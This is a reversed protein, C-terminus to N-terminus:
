NIVVFGVSTEATAAANLNITFSGAAPVVNKIVATSDNTRIVCLVISSTTVLSDTVVLSSAGAAFNVTGAAKNITQAGTTGAATNTADVYHQRVKLDRFTGATGNNVEVVGAANRSFATDPSGTISVASHFGFVGDSAIYFGAQGAGSSGQVRARQNGPSALSGGSNWTSPRGNVIFLGLANSLAGIDSGGQQFVLVNQSAGGNIILPAGSGSGFTNVGTFTQTGGLSALDADTVATNLQALTGSVTNSGLAFTKNTLTVSAANKTADSTNDVNGLGVDGKVIGTPTVLAPSNARVVDGTGTFTLVAQYLTDFYTKLTAKINAWTLKKLVGAAASDSLGVSDADVPTAKSTAGSVLTGVTTATEAPAAALAAANFDSVTSATQTGTHNSRARDTTSATAIAADRATAEASVATTTFATTAVQTTNTGPAATPATPTGTLAPSALPAKTDVEADLADVADGVAELSTVVAELEGQTAMDVAFGPNPFSGSLVGGAGGTPTRSDSLRTDSGKVVEGAAANGSAPANLAAATGADSITALTQQGTHNTRARDATSATAIAAGRATVEAADANARATAEANINTQLTADGSARASAEATDASARTTAEATVSAATAKLDLAGQLDTQASLTGTIDGWAGGGGEFEDIQEQLGEEAATARAVEAQLAAQSAGPLTTPTAPILDELDATAADPITVVVGKSPQTNFGWVPGDIWATCDRPLTFSVAGDSGIPVPLHTTSILAGGKVLKRVHLAGGSKPTVGDAEYVTGSITITLM